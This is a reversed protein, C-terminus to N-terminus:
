NAFEAFKKSNRAVSENIPELAQTATQITLESIRLAQEFASEINQRATESQLQFLEAVNRCELAARAAEVNQAFIDNVYNFFQQSTKKAAQSATNYSQAAAEAHERHMELSRNANRAVKNASQALNQSLDRGLSTVKEQIQKANTAANAFAGRLVKSGRDTAERVTDTAQRHAHQTSKSISAIGLDFNTKASNAARSTAHKASSAASHSSSSHSSSSAKRASSSKKKSKSKSSSRAPTSSASAASAGSFNYSGRKKATKNSNTNAAKAATTSATTM